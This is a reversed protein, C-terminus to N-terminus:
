RGLKKELEELVREASDLSRKARVPDTGKLSSEAQDLYAELRQERTTYEANLNLGGMQRRLSALTGRVSNARTGLLLMREKLEDLDPSAVATAPATAPATVPAREPEAIPAPAPQVTGSAPLPTGTGVAPNQAVVRPETERPSSPSHSLGPPLEGTKQPSGSKEPVSVLEAPRAPSEPQGTAIPSPEPQKNTVASAPGFLAPVQFAALALVVITLVSGVTM